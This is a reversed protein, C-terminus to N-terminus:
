IKKACLNVDMFDFQSSCKLSYVNVIYQKREECLKHRLYMKSIMKDEQEIRCTTQDERINCYSETCHHVLPVYEKIKHLPVVDIEGTFEVLPCGLYTSSPKIVGKEVLVLSYRNTGILFLHGKQYLGISCENERDMYVLSMGEKIITGDPVKCRGYTIMKGKDVSPSTVGLDILGQLLLCQPRFSSIDQITAKNHLNRLPQQLLPKRSKLIEDETDPLIGLFDNMEKQQSIKQVNEASQTWIGNTQFFGGMIIHLFIYSKGFILATDRSRALQNEQHFLKARIVGHRKEFVDESFALPPGHRQIEDSIHTLLHTKVKNQLEPFYREVLSLYRSILSELIQFDEQAFITQHMIRHVEQKDHLAVLNPSENPTSQLVRSGTLLHPMTFTEGLSLICIMKIYKQDLGAYAFSFPAIQIMKKLDKGQRSNFHKCINHSIKQQDDFSSLHSELKAIQLDTMKEICAKLLHKLVGLHFLHLVGSPVDRHPNIIDWFPNEYEKVGTEKRLIKKSEENGRLKLREITRKTEAPTRDRQKALCNERDAHCKPCFKLAAAGAHNCTLSLMNFDAIVCNLDLQLQVTRKMGAHVTEILNQQSSKIDQLVLRSISLMSANESAALFNSYIEKNRFQLPVGALQMQACHMPLWRRSVNTSTDDIFLNVPVAIKAKDQNQDGTGLLGNQEPNETLSEQDTICRDLIELNQTPYPSLLSLATTRFQETRVLFCHGDEKLEENLVEYSALIVNGEENELFTQIIGVSDDSQVFDGVHFNKAGVSAWPSIIEKFRSGDRQNCIVDTERSFRAINKCIVPNSFHLKAVETPKLSYLPLGDDDEGKMILDDVNLDGFKM